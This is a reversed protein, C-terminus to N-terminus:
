ALNPSKMSAQTKVACCAPCSADKDARLKATYCEGPLIFGTLGVEQRGPKM